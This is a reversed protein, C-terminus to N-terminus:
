HYPSWRSRCEKGVRREESRWEILKLIGNEMEISDDDTKNFEDKVKEKMEIVAEAGSFLTLTKKDTGLGVLIRIEDVDELKEQLLYFGTLRFYGVLVDFYKSNSLVSNLRDTLKIGNENRNTFVSLDTNM